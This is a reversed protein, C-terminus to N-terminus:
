RITASRSPTTPPASSSPSTIRRSPSNRPSRPATLGHRHGSRSAPSTSARTRGSRRTFWDGAFNEIGPIDPVNSASLAGLARHPVAGHRRRRNGHAVEM